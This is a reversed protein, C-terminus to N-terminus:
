TIAAGGECSASRRMTRSESGRVKNLPAVELRRTDFLKNADFADGRAVHWLARALKRMVAVVAKTKFEAKYASRARYWSVVIPNDKVLRLAAMYLLQRVQAPGRKTLSLKGEKNGSSREKLNLGTAKELARASSFDLPSGIRSGISAACAPGVVAAMRSLVEDSQVLEALRADVRDMRRTQLEIQETVTRLKEEEGATMPMGVTTKAADVIRELRERALNGRSAKRLTEDGGRRRHGSTSARSVGPFACVM